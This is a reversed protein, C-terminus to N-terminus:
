INSVDIAMATDWISCFSGSNLYSKWNGWFGVCVLETTERIQIQIRIRLWIQNRTWIRSAGLGKPNARNQRQRSNDACVALSLRQIAVTGRDTRHTWHCKTAYYTLWGCTLGRTTEPWRHPHHKPHFAFTDFGVEPKILLEALFPFDPNWFSKTKFVARKSCRM